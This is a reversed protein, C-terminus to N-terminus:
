MSDEKKEIAALQTEDHGYIDDRFHTVGGEDVWATKYVIQVAVDRGGVTIAKPEPENMLNRIQSRDHSELLYDALEVPREVRICGSSYTRETRDFLHEAPTDHLYIAMNNPFMFKVQGLSNQPGPQQVVRFNFDSEQMASWNVHHPNVQEADEDWSRYIEFNNRLAYGPDKKLAPLIDKRAISMPVNWTPSFELYQMQDNFVPTSRYERGVVVKMRMVEERGEYVRLKFEPVNVVIADKAFDEPLWRMREMNLRIQEARDEAPTNLAALTAPGTKGDVELGYRKQFKEVAMEVYEDYVQPNQGQLEQVNYDGEIRLRERLSAVSESTDGKELVPNDDDKKVEPWGGRDALERYYLFANRLQVYADHPPNLAMLSEEIQNNEIAQQLHQALDVQRPESHWRGNLASPDIRGKLLHTGYTLYASTLWVDLQLMKALNVEPSGNYVEQMLPNIQEFEYNDEELGERWASAMTQQLDKHLSLPEEAGLWALSYDRDKYFQELEQHLEVRIARDIFYRDRRLGELKEAMAERVLEGNLAARPILTDALIDSKDKKIYVSSGDMSNDKAMACPAVSFSLMAAVAVYNLINSMILPNSYLSTNEEFLFQIYKNRSFM